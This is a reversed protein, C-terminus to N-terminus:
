GKFLNKGFITIIILAQSGLALRINKLAAKIHSKVTNISLGM